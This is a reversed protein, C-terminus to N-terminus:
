QSHQKTTPSAIKRCITQRVNNSQESEEPKRKRSNLKQLGESLAPPTNWIKPLKEDNEYNGSPTKPTHITESEVSHRSPERFPSFNKSQSSFSQQPTKPTQIPPSIESNEHSSSNENQDCSCLAFLEELVLEESNRRKAENQKSESLSSNKM